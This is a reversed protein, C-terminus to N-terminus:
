RKQTSMVKINTKFKSIKILDENPKYTGPIALIFNEQELLKSCYKINTTKITKIQKAIKKFVTYYIEWAKQIDDELKSKQYNKCYIFADKLENGYLQEFSIESLTKKENSQMMKHLPSLIDFMAKIDHNGFYAKSADEIGDYWLEHWLMAIRILEDSIFIAQDTLNQSHQRM